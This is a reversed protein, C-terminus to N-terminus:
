VRSGGAKNFATGIWRGWQGVRQTVANARGVANINDGSISGLSFTTQDGKNDEWLTVGNKNLAALIVQAEKIEAPIEDSPLESFRSLGPTDFHLHLVYPAVDDSLNPFYRNFWAMGGTQGELQVGRRPWALRQRPETKSGAYSWNTSIQRAAEILYPIDDTEFQFTDFVDEPEYGYCERPIELITLNAEDLDVWTNANTGTTRLEM